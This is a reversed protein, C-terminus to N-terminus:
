TFYIKHIISKFEATRKKTDSIINACLGRPDEDNILSFKHGDPFKLNIFDEVPVSVAIEELNGIEFLCPDTDRVISYANEFDPGTAFRNKEIECFAIRLENQWEYGYDKSFVPNLIKNDGHKYYDIKDMWFIENEGYQKYIESMLLRMFKDYDKIIVATDGFQQLKRNPREFFNTEPIYKMMTMSFVKKYKLEYDDVVTMRKATETEEYMDLVERSDYAGVAGEFLDGRFDNNLTNDKIHEQRGWIGFDYLSRMYVEGELFKEAWKRDLIKVPVFISMIKGKMVYNEYKKEM